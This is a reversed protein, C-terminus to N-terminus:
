EKYAIVEVVKVNFRFREQDDVHGKKRIRSVIEDIFVEHKEQPLVSLHPLMARIFNKYKVPDAYLFPREVVALKQIQFGIELLLAAYENTTWIHAPSEYNKFYHAWSPSTSLEKLCERLIADPGPIALVIAGGPKLARKFRRLAEIQNLEWHLASFSTIVTFANEFDIESAKSQIFRTNSGGFKKQAFQYMSLSPDAGTVSGLPVLEALKASIKGDGCGIDLIKDDSRFHFQKILLDAVMWQQDSNSFYREGSWHTDVVAQSLQPM